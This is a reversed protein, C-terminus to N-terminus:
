TIFCLRIAKRIIGVSNEVEFKRFLNRRYTVGLSSLVMSEYDTLSYTTDIIYSKNLYFKAVDWQSQEIYIQGLNLYVAAM